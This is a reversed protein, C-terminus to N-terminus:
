KNTMRYAAGNYGDENHPLATITVEYGVADSDTLNLDGNETLKGRPIIYRIPEGQRDMTEIIYIKEDLEDATAYVDFKGSNVEVHDSGYITKLVEERTTEIFTMGFSYEVGTTPTLVTDGGWAKISESSRDTNLTIGDESIYGLAKYQDSLATQADTPLTTGAPATYVGGTVKPKGVMVNNIENTTTQKTVQDTM